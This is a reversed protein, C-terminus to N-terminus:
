EGEKWDVIESLKAIIATAEGPQWGDAQHIALVDLYISANGRLYDEIQGTALAGAFHDGARSLGQFYGVIDDLKSPKGAKAEARANESVGRLADRVYNVNCLNAFAEKEISPMPKGSELNEAFWAFRAEDMAKVAERYADTQQRVAAREETEGDDNLAPDAYIEARNGILLAVVQGPEWEPPLYKAVEEPKPALIYYALGSVGQRDKVVPVNEAAFAAEFQAQRARTEREKRLRVALAQAESEKCETLRKVAQQDDSFEDILFLRDITMDDGADDVVARARRIKAVKEKEIGTVGSVYEDDGFMALQQVYRSREVAEYKKKTDTRIVTELVSQITDNDDIIAQCKKTGRLKMAEYRTRGAKIYYIGGDQILTIPEDPEGKEGFSDALEQVYARNAKTSYDRSTYENGYEDKIPYVDELNVTEIRLAM